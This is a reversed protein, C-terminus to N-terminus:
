FLEMRMGSAVIDVSPYEAALRNRIQVERSVPIAIVAHDDRVTVPVELLGALKAFDFNSPGRLTLKTEGTAGKGYIAFGASDPGRDTLVSLMAATLAGLEPELAPNKLFLGAIGCM